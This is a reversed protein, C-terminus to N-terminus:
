RRTGVRADGVGVTAVITRDAAPDTRVEASDDGVDSTTTVAYVTGDSPVRVEVDGVDAGAVVDRPPELFRLEVDGVGVEARVRQATLDTLRVSGVEARVDAPGELGRAIVQGAGTRVEVVTDAPLDLDLDLRCRGFSPEPCDHRLTLVGDDVDSEVEGRGFATRVRWEGTVGPPDDAADLTVSGVEATIEVRRVDGAEVRSSAEQTATAALALVAAVTVAALVLLAGLVTLIV